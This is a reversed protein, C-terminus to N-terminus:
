GKVGGLTLGKVVGRQLILFMFVPPIASLITSAMLPGWFFVDASM